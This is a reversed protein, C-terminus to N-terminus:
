EWRKRFWGAQCAVDSTTAATVRYGLMMETVLGVNWGRVGFCAFSAVVVLSVARGGEGGGMVHLSDGSSLVVCRRGVWGRLDGCGGGCVGAGDGEGCVCVGILRGRWVRGWQVGIRRMSGLLPRCSNLAPYEGQLAPHGAEYRAGSSSSPHVTTDHTDM